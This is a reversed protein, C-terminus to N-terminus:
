LVGVDGPVFVCQELIQGVRLRENRAVLHRVRADFVLLLPAVHDDIQRLRGLLLSLAAIRRNRIRRQRDYAIDPSQPNAIPSSPLPTPAASRPIHTASAGSITAAASKVAGELARAR